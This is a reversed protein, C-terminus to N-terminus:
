NHDGQHNRRSTVNAIKSMSRESLLIDLGLALVSRNQLLQQPQAANVNKFNNNYIVCDHLISRVPSVFHGQNSKTGILVPASVRKDPKSLDFCTARNSQHFREVGKEAMSQRFCSLRVAKVNQMQLQLHKKPELTNRPNKILTLIDDVRQPTIYLFTRSTKALAEASTHVMKRRVIQLVM